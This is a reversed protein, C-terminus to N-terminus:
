LTYINMKSEDKSEFIYLHVHIANNQGTHDQHTRETTRVPVHYHSHTTHHHKTSVIYTKVPFEIYRIRWFCIHRRVGGETYFGPCTEKPEPRVLPTHFAVIGLPASGCEIVIRHVLRVPVTTSSSCTNTWFATGFTHDPHASLIPVGAPLVIEGPGPVERVISFLNHEIEKKKVYLTRMYCALMHSM